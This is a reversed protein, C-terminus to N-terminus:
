FLKKNSKKPKKIFKEKFQTEEEKKLCSENIPSLTEIVTYVESKNQKIDINFNCFSPCFTKPVECFKLNYDQHFIKPELVLLNNSNM